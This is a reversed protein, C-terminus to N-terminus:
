EHNGKAPVQRHGGANPQYIRRWEVRFCWGLGFYFGPVWANTHWFLGLGYGGRDRHICLYWGLRPFGIGDSYLRVMRKL